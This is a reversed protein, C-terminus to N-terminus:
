KKHIGVYAPIMTKGLKAYANARHIGDIISYWDGMKPHVVIPPFTSPSDKIHEIIEIVIDENVDFEELDINSIPIDKKIYNDYTNIRDIVDGEEFDEPKGHISQVLSQIEYSPITKAAKIDRTSLKISAEVLVPHEISIDKIKRKDMIGIVKFPIMIIKEGHKM